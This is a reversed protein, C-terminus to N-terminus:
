GAKVDFTIGRQALDTVFTPNTAVYGQPAITVYRAGDAREFELTDQSQTVHRVRGAQVDHLFDSFATSTRAPQASPRLLFFAILSLTVVLVGAVM